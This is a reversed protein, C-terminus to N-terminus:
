IHWSNVRHSPKYLKAQFMLMLAQMKSKTSSKASRIFHCKCVSFPPTPPGCQVTLRRSQYTKLQLQPLINTHSAQISLTRSLAAYTTMVQYGVVRFLEKVETNDWVLEFAAETNALTWTEHSARVTWHAPHVNQFSYMGDEGSVASQAIQNDQGILEVTVGAQPQSDENNDM